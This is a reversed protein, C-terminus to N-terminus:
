GVVVNNLILLEIYDDVYQKVGEDGEAYVIREFEAFEKGNLELTLYNTCDLNYGGLREAQDCTLVVPLKIPIKSIDTDTDIDTIM